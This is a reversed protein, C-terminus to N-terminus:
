KHFSVSSLDITLVVSVSERQPSPAYECLLRIAGHVATQQDYFWLQVTICEAQHSRKALAVSM